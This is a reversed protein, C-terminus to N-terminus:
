QAWKLLVYVLIPVICLLDAHGRCLSSVSVWSANFYLIFYKLKEYMEFRSLGEWKGQNSVSDSKLFTKWDILISKTKLLLQKLHCSWSVLCNTLLGPGKFALSFLCISPNVELETHCLQRFRIPCAWLSRYLLFFQLYCLSRSCLLDEIFTNNARAPTAWHISHQGTFRFTSPQIGLRPVHM